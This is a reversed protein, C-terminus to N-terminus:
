SKPDFIVMQADNNKYAQQFVVINKDWFNFNYNLFKHLELEKVYECVGTNVNFETYYYMYGINIVMQLISDKSHMEKVACVKYIRNSDSSVFPFSIIRNDRTIILPNYAYVITNNKLIFNKYSLEKYRNYRKNLLSDNIYKSKSKSIEFVKNQKNFNYTIFKPLSDNVSLDRNFEYFISTVDYQNHKYSFCYFSTGLYKDKQQPESNVFDIIKDNKCFVVVQNYTIAIQRQSTKVPYMVSAMIVLSDGITDMNNVNVKQFGYQLCYKNYKSELSDYDNWQLVSDHYKRMAYQFISKNLYLSNLDLYKEFKFKSYVFIKGMPGVITYLKDNYVVSTFPGDNYLTDFAITEREKAKSIISTNRPSIESLDQWRIIEGNGITLVFSRKRDSKVLKKISNIVDQDKIINPSYGFGTEKIFARHKSEPMNNFYWFTNEAFEKGKFNRLNINCNYCDNTEIFFVLFDSSTDTVNQNKNIQRLKNLLSSDVFYSSYSKFSTFLLIIVILFKNFM